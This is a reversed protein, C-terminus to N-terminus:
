GVRWGRSALGRAFADVMQPMFGSLGPHYVILATGATGGPNVVRVGSEVEREAILTWVAGVVVAMLALLLVATPWRRALIWRM